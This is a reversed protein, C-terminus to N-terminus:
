YRYMNEYKRDHVDVVYPFNWTVKFAVKHIEGAFTYLYLRLDITFFLEKM